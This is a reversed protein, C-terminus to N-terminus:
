NIKKSSQEIDIIIKHCSKCFQAGLEDDIINTLKITEKFIGFRKKAKDSTFTITDRGGRIVGNDMENGCYPCKM